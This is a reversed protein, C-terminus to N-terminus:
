VSSHRTVVQWLGDRRIWVDTILLEDSRDQGRYTAKQTYRSRMVAMDGYALIQVDAFEFSEIDYVSIAALWQERTMRGIGPAQLMYEPAVLSELTEVDKQRVADMWEIALRPIEEEVGHRKADM